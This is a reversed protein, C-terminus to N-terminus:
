RRGAVAAILQDLLADPDHVAVCGDTVVRRTGDDVPSISAWSPRGIGLEVQLGDRLRFRLETIAGWDVRRM